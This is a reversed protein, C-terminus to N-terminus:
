RNLFIDPDFQASTGAEQTMSVSVAGTTMVTEIPVRDASGLQILAPELSVLHEPGYAVGVSQGVAPHAQVSSARPRHYGPDPLVPQVYEDGTSLLGLVVPRNAHQQLQYVQTELERQRVSMEAILAEQDVIKTKLDVNEFLLDSYDIMLRAKEVKNVNVRSKETAKYGRQRKNGSAKEQRELEDLAAYEVVAEKEAEEAQIWYTLASIRDEDLANIQHRRKRQVSSLDNSQDIKDM